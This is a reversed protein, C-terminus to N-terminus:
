LEIVRAVIGSGDVELIGVSPKNYRRMHRAVQLWSWEFWGPSKGPAGQARGATLRLSASTPNWQHVGGPNFLLVGGITEARARHTHGYVIADAQPFRRRLTRPLGLHPRFYGLSLTWLLTNPEELWRSRNGHMVVIRKGEVTVQRSTPLAALSKDHDGRVAEVPALRRLAALTDEGDIDGAHLVLDVGALAEFLGAPLQALFEPCHTDSVVGIRTTM